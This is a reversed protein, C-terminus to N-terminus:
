LQTRRRESLRQPRRRASVIAGNVSSIFQGLVSELSDTRTELADTQRRLEATM